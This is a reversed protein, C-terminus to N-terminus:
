GTKAAAALLVGAVCLAVQKDKANMAARRNLLRTSLRSVTRLLMQFEVKRAHNRPKERACITTDITDNSAHVHLM